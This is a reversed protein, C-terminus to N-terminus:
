EDNGQLGWMEDRQELEQRHNRMQMQEGGEAWEREWKDGELEETLSVCASMKM